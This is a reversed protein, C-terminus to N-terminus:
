LHCTKATRSEGDIPLDWGSAPASWPQPMQQDTGGWFAAQYVAEVVPDQWFICPSDPLCFDYSGGFWAHLCALMCLQGSRAGAGGLFNPWWQMSNATM